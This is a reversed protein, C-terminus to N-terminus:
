ELWPIMNKWRVEKLNEEELMYIRGPDLLSPLHYEKKDPDYEWREDLVTAGDEAELEWITEIGESNISTYTVKGEMLDDAFSGVKKIERAEKGDNGDYYAYGIIGDGNLRGNEWRGASYDYRPYDLHIAQLALGQGELGSEGFTGSFVTSYSQFWLGGGSGSLSVDEGDYFYPNGEMTVYYLDRFEQERGNLLRAAGPLDTNQLFEQLEELLALEERTARSEKEADAPTAAEAYPQSELAAKSSEQQTKANGMYLLSVAAAGAIGAAIAIYRKGIM